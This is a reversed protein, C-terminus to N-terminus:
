SALEDLSVTKTCYSLSNKNHSILLVMKGKDALSRFHSLLKRESGEDLENFPEDLIYFDADKYLARAISIRQRQGGSIDRGNASIKRNLNEPDDKLMSHVGSIDLASQLKPGDFPQHGLTINQLISDHLLFPQQKVYSIHHWCSRRTAPDAPLGNIHIEGYETQLFGLLLHLLTTKGKGSAGSLGIMEGRRISFNHGNLVWKEDYRFRIDHLCVSEIAPFLPPAEAPNIALGEVLRDITFAYANMQASLTLIKVVGPIIKYAAAMFVGITFLGTSQSQGTWQRVVMLLLIGAIAFVELMRSPIGQLASHEAIHRNFRDQESAFRDLFLGNRGYVNSEVFGSLAEQLYQLAKEGSSKAALGAVSSRRRLLRFVLWVPPTLILTVLLFLRADFFLMVSITLVILVVQTFIQQMGGLIHQSFEIPFFGIERVRVSPDTGAYVPWEGELYRLLMEASLRSSVKYQHNCQARFVRFGILNKVAFLSFFSGLVWPGPFDARNVMYVLAMLFLIDAVSVITDMLALTASKKREGATLLSSIRRYNLSHM